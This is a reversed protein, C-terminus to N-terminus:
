ADDLALVVLKCESHSQSSLTRCLLLFMPMLILLASLHLVSAFCGLLSLKSIQRTNVGAGCTVVKGLARSAPGLAFTDLRLDQQAAFGILSHALLRLETQGKDNDAQQNDQTDIQLHGTICHLLKTQAHLM